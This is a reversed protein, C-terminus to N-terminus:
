VVHQDDSDDLVAIAVVTPATIVSNCDNASSSPSVSSFTPDELNAEKNAKIGDGDPAAAAGRGIAYLIWAQWLQILYLAIVLIPVLFKMITPWKTEPLWSFISMASYDISFLLVM